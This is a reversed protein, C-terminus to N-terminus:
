HFGCRFAGGGWSTVQNWMSTAADFCWTKNATPFTAYIFTHGRDAFSWMECDLVTSYGRIEYDLAPTSIKEPTYGNARVIGFGGEKNQALWYLTNDAKCAGWRAALGMGIFGGQMKTYPFGAPNNANYWPETTSEGMLWISGHVTIVRILGDPDAEPTAKDLVNWTSGDFVGSVQATGDLNDVVFYGDNFHVDHGGGFDAHTIKAFTNTAITYIYGSTGDVMMIQLGNSDIGIKGTSTDLTGKETVTGDNAVKYCKNGAVVIAIDGSQMGGRIAAVGISSFIDLGYRGILSLKSKGGANDIQHILNVCEQSNLNTSPGSYSPGCIQLNVPPM